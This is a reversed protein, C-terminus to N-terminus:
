QERYPSELKRELRHILEKLDDDTIGEAAMQDKIMATVNEPFFASMVTALRIPDTKALEDLAKSFAKDGRQYARQLKNIEAWDADTLSSTDAIELPPRKAM